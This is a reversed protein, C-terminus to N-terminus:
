PSVLAENKMKCGADAVPAEVVTVSSANRIGFAVRVRTRVGRIGGM